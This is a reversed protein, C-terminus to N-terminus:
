MIICRTLSLTPLCALNPAAFAASIHDLRGLLTASFIRPFGEAHSLVFPPSKINNIIKREPSNSSARPERLTRLDREAVQQTIPGFDLLRGNASWSISRITFDKCSSVSYSLHLFFSRKRQKRRNSLNE